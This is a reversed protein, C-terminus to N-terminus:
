KARVIARLRAVVDEWDVVRGEEAAKMAREWDMASIAREAADELAQRRRRETPSIVYAVPQGYRTIEVEGQEIAERVVGPADRHLDRIPRPRRPTKEAREITM